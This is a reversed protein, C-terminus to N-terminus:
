TSAGERHRVERASGTRRLAITTGIAPNSTIDLDASIQQARTRINHMGSGNTMVTPDFGTGNDHIVLTTTHDLHTLSVTIQDAHSHRCANSLAEQTIRYLATKISTPMPPVAEADIIIDADYASALSEVLQALLAPLANKAFAQPSLEVLLARLDALSSLVLERIRDVSEALDTPDLRAQHAAADALFSVSYMRQTVSDHLDMAIRQRETEIATGAVMAVLEFRHILGALHEATLALYRVEDATFDHEPVPRAILEGIATAGIAIPESVAADETTDPPPGSHQWSLSRPLLDDFHQENLRLKISAAPLITGLQELLARLSAEITTPTPDVMANAQGFEETLSALSRTSRRQRALQDELRRNTDFLAATREIVTEELRVTQDLLREDTRASRDALFAAGALVTAVMGFPAMYPTEVAGLDVLSDYFNVAGSVLLVGAVVATNSRRQRFGRVIAIVVFVFLTVLYVDLVPRWPSTTAEHVVFPEGFLTVARLGEIDGALLGNPLAASLVGIVVTALGFALAVPRSWQRTWAIVLMVIAILGALNVFGFVKFWTSYEDVTSSQHLRVTVVTSIASVLAFSGFSWMLPDVGRRRVSFLFFVVAVGFFVGATTGYAITGWGVMM